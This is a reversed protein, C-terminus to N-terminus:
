PLLAAAQYKSFRPVILAVAVDPSPMWNTAPPVTTLKPLMVAVPAFPRPTASSAPPVTVLVPVPSISAAAPPMKM